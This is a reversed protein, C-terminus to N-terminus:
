GLNLANRLKVFKQFLRLKQLMVFAILTEPSCLDNPVVCASVPRSRSTSVPSTWPKRPGLPAPLDVVM